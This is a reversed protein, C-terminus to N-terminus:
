DTVSQPQSTPWLAECSKESPEHGRIYKESITSTAPCDSSAAKGSHRDVMVDVLNPSPPFDIEPIGIHAQKMFTVWIPLASNAGTLPAQFASPNSTSNQDMGVTIGSGPLVIRNPSVHESADHFFRLFLGWRQDRRPERRSNM